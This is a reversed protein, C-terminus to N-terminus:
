AYWNQGTKSIPTQRTQVNSSQWSSIAGQCTCACSLHCFGSYRWDGIWSHVANGLSLSRAAGAQWRSLLCDSAGGGHTCLDLVRLDQVAVEASVTGPRLKCGLVAGDAELQLLEVPKAHGVVREKLLLRAELVQAM